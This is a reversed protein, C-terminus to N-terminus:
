DSFIEATVFGLLFFASVNVCIGCPYLMWCTKLDFIDVKFKGRIVNATKLHSNNIYNCRIFALAASKM